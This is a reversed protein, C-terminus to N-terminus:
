SASTSRSGPRRAPSRMRRGFVDGNIAAIVRHGDRSVRAAQSASPRSPTRAPAPGSVELSIGPAGPRCRRARRGAARGDDDVPRPPPRRRRGRHRDDDRRLPRDDVGTREAARFEEGAIDGAGPQVLGVSAVFALILLAARVRSHKMTAGPSLNVDTAHQRRRQELGITAAVRLGRRMAVRSHHRLRSKFEYPTAGLPTQSRLTQWNRWEPGPSGRCPLGQETTGARRPSGRRSGRDLIRTSAAFRAVKLVIQRTLTAGKSGSPRLRAETM